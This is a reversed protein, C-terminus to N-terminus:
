RTSRGGQVYVPRYRRLNPVVQDNEESHSRCSRGYVFKKLELNSM